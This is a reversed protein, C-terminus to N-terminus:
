AGILEEADKHKIFRNIYMHTFVHLYYFNVTKATPRPKIGGM